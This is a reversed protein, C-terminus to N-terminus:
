VCCLSCIFQRCRHSFDECMYRVTVCGPEQFCIVFYSKSVSVHIYSKPVFVFTQTTQTLEDLEGCSLKYQKSLISM